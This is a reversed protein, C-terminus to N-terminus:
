GGKRAREVAEDRSPYFTYSLTISSVDDLNRDNAIDPDIFFLVPFDAGQGAALTQEEFCFCQTKVFYPAAKEPTVNFVATGTVAHDANNTARYAVLKEEGARVMVARQEPVFEWLLASNVDANFEVRFLREGTEGPASANEAIQPTGGFGTVKCFLSYLPVSAYALGLMGLAVGVLGLFLRRNKRKIDAM